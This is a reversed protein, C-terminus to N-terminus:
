LHLEACSIALPWSLFHRQGAEVDPSISEILLIWTHVLEELRRHEARRWRHGFRGRRMPRYGSHNSDVQKWPVLRGVTVVRLKLCTIFPLPSPQISDIPEVANYVVAIKEKARRM